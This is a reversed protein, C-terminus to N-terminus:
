LENSPVVSWIKNSKKVAVGKKEFLQSVTVFEYGEGRLKSIIQPLAKVTKVNDTFDHMLVIAGDEVQSMVNYVRKEVSTNGDWDVSDIGCIFPLDIVEFMTDNVDIFPPRFFAPEKGSIAKIRATTAAIEDKIVDAELTNMHSHTLSHNCLEHGGKVQRVVISESASTINNGILFFTGKIGNADLIDLIQETVNSPGDDFTLAVIKNGM